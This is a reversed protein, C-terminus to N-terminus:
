RTTFPLPLALALALIRARDEPFPALAGTAVVARGLLDAAGIADAVLALRRRAVGIAVTAWDNAGRCGAHARIGVSWQGAAAHALERLRVRASGYLVSSALADDTVRRALALAFAFRLKQLLAVPADGAIGDVNTMGALTEDATDAVQSCPRLLSTM